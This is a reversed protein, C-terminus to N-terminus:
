SRPRALQGNWTATIPSPPTPRDHTMPATSASADRITAISRTAAFSSTARDNPAVSVIRALSSAPPSSRPAARGSRRRGRNRRRPSRGVRSPRAPSRRAGPRRCPRARRCSAPRRGHRTRPRGTRRHRAASGRSSSRSPPAPSRNGASRRTTSRPGGAPELASRDASRGRHDRPRMRPSARPGLVDPLHDVELRGPNGVAAAFGRRAAASCAAGTGRDAAAAARRHDPALGRGHTLFSWAWRVLVVIRNAFGILYVIHIGLWLLWAIFGGQRGFPGLWPIDTVGSLRGIVAVDGHNSYRFPADAPRPHRRRISRRRTRGARSRRGPRRGADAPGGEVAARRRRRGRLDRPARPHDPRARGPGARGPRDRRRDGGGRDPRVVVGPRGRAWLVTRTPIPRRARRRRDARGPGSPEDIDVVRTTTRVTVGLRELQRRRRHRGIRASLDAAGPGDGRDPRDPRRAPQDVPLRAQLTDRAIEGLAGALEVGTPGGGVVVFTM